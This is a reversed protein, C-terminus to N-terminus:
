HRLKMPFSYINRKRIIITLVLRAYNARWVALPEADPLLVGGHCQFSSVMVFGREGGLSLTAVTHDRVSKSFSVPRKKVDSNKIFAVQGIELNRFIRQGLRIAYPQL